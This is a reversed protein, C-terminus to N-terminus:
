VVEFLAGKRQRTHSRINQVSWEQGVIDLKWIQLDLQRPFLCDNNAVHIYLLLTHFVDHVGCQCLGKSIGVYYSKSGFKHTISYPGIHKPVLKQALGKLFAINKSSIYVLGGIDFPLPLCKQNATWIEKVQHALISDHANIIALKLGQM